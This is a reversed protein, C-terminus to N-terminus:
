CRSSPITRADTAPKVAVAPDAAGGVIRRRQEDADITICGADVIPPQGVADKRDIRQGRM